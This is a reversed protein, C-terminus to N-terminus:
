TAAAHALKLRAAPMAFILSAMAAICKAKPQGHLLM